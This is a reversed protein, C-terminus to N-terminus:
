STGSLWCAPRQRCRPCPCMSPGASPTLLYPIHCPVVSVDDLGGIPVLIVLGGTGPVVPSAGFGPATDVARQGASDEAAPAGPDLASGGTPALSRDRRRRAILGYLHPTKGAYRLIRAGGAAAAVAGVAPVQGAAHGPGDGTRHLVGSLVHRLPVVGTPVVTSAEATGAAVGAAAVFVASQGGVLDPLHLFVVSGGRVAQPARIGLRCRAAHAGGLRPVGVPLRQRLVLQVAIHRPLVEQVAHAAGVILLAQAIGDVRLHLLGYVVVVALDLLRAGTM